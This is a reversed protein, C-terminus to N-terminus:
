KIIGDEEQRKKRQKMAAEFQEYGELEGTVVKYKGNYYWEVLVGDVVQWLDVMVEGDEEFRINGSIISNARLGDVSFDRGLMMEGGVTVSNNVKLKLYRREQELLGNHAVLVRRYSALVVEEGKEGNMVRCQRAISLTVCGNIIFIAFLLVVREAVMVLRM